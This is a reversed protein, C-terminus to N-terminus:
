KALPSLSVHVGNNAFGVIDAKGDGDIDAMMRPHKDIRWGEENYGFQKIAHVPAAFSTKQSLSYYAGDDAFGVIDAKGDGNVDAMMRPHKEVRWQGADYGYQSVWKSPQSFGSGTSLSVYVGANGFGVVDARGDGNVDAMMRPHKEVRWQGANYGFANVWLSPASFSTGTSLSVYVGAGGFGVVDAKGDGNVDAMMRPDKGVRWGGAAYGYDNVWLVPAKFSNGTSLSVYVGDTAFGVVDAKGDGNVDAMMRPHLDVRWGGAKYGYSTVWLQPASFGTSTSTSVYVGDSAFGVVDALGDGNVDALMRPHVGIRWGGAKYGFSEVWTSPTSFGSGTSTAVVVGSHAFGVVDALGDGNVDALVRPHQDVRWGGANYGFSNLWLSSTWAPADAALASSTLVTLGLTTLLKKQM